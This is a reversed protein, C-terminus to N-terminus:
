GLVILEVGILLVPLKTSVIGLFPCLTILVVAPIDREQAPNISIMAKAVAMVTMAYTSVLKGTAM